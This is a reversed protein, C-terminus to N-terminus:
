IMSDDLSNTWKVLDDVEEEWEDPNQRTKLRNSDMGHLSPSMRTSRPHMYLRRMKNVHDLKAQLKEDQKPQTDRKNFRGYLLDRQKEEVYARQKQNEINISAADCLAM